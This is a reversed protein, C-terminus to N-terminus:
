LHTIHMMADSGAFVGRHLVSAAVTWAEASLRHCGLLSRINTNKEGWRDVVLRRTAGGKTWLSRLTLIPLSQESVKKSLGRHELVCGLSCEVSLTTVLQWPSAM